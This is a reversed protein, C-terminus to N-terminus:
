AKIARLYHEAHQYYDEATVPDGALAEAQALALYREYRGRANQHDRAATRGNRSTPRAPRTVSRAHHGNM